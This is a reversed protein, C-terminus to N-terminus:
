AFMAIFRQFWFFVRVTQLPSEVFGRVVLQVKKKSERIEQSIAKRNRNFIEERAAEDMGESDTSRITEKEEKSAKANFKYVDIGYTAPTRGKM